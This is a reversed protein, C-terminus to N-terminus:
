RIESVRVFVVDHPVKREEVEEAYLGGFVHRLNVM